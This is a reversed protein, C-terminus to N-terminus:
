TYYYMYMRTASANTPMETNVDTAAQPAETAPAVATSLAVPESTVEDTNNNLAVATTEPPLATTMSSTMNETTETTNDLQSITTVEATDNQNSDPSTMASPMSTQDPALKTNDCDCTKLSFIVLFALFISM